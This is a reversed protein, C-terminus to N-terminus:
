TPGSERVDAIILQDGGYKQSSGINHRKGDTSDAENPDLLLPQDNMGPTSYMGITIGNPVQIAIQSIQSNRGARM